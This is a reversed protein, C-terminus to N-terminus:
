DHVSHKQKEAEIYARKTEHDLNDQFLSARYRFHFIAAGIFPLLILFLCWFTKSRGLIPAKLTEVIPVVILILHPILILGLIGIFFNSM